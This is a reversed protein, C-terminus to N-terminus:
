GDQWTLDSCMKRKVFELDEMRTSFFHGGVKCLFLSFKRKM